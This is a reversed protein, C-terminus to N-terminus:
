SLLRHLIGGIAYFDAVNSPKVFYANVDFSSSKERDAQAGSSTMVVVPIWRCRKSARLFSLVQFGDAKPINLDLLLINPCTISDADLQRFFTMVEAGDNMVYINVDLNHAAIAEQVLFIDGINDEAVVIAPRSQNAM